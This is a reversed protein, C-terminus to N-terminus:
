PTVLVRSVGIKGDPQLSVAAVSVSEFSDTTVKGGIGFSADLSGDVNHRTLAFHESTNVASGALIIKGDPQLAVARAVDSLGFFDITVKGGAGFSTDLSGDANYRAVAFDHGDIGAVVESSGALIIKGDPQLAIGWARDEFGFFDTTTMGGVGFGRDLTGDVNYRALAFGGKNISGATGAAIIKGDPQAAIAQVYSFDDSFNTNVLTETGFTPDLDGAAAHTSEPLPWCVLMGILSLVFLRELHRKHLAM